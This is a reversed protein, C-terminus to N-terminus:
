QIELSAIFSDTQRKEDLYVFLGTKIKELPVLRDWEHTHFNGRVLGM